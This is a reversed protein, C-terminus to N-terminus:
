VFQINQVIIYLIHRFVGGPKERNGGTQGERGVRVPDTQNERQRMHGAGQVANEGTEGHLAEVEGFQFATRNFVPLEFVCKIEVELSIQLTGGGHVQETGQGFLQGHEIEQAVIPFLGDVRVSM